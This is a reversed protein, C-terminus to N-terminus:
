AKQPEEILLALINQKMRVKRLKGHPVIDLLQKEQMKQLSRYAKVRNMGPLRAIEVQTTECGKKVIYNVIEREEGSLFLLVVGLVDQSAKEKQRLESYLYQATLFGLVLSVIVLGLMLDNHHAIVFTLYVNSNIPVNHTMFSLAGLAILLVILVALNVNKVTRTSYQAM